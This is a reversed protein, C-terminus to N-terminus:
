SIATKLLSIGKYVFACDGVHLQEFGVQGPMGPYNAYRVLADPMVDVIKFASASAFAGVIHNAAMTQLYDNVVVPKGHLKAVFVNTPDTDFIPRHNDDVLGRLAQYLSDSFMFVGDTRYAAALSHEWAIFEAYTIGTPSATTKGVTGNTLLTTTWASEQVKEIRKGLLDVVYGLVDFGAAQIMVNSFWAQKSSYQTPSITVSADTADQTTGSSANEALTAGINGTDDAIPLSWTAPSTTEIPNIGYADLAARYSNRLRRITIVPLVQKPLYAGSGTSTTVTFLDRPMDGTRAFHNIAKSYKAKEFTSGDVDARYDDRGAPQTVGQVTGQPNGTEDEKGDLIDSALKAFEDRALIQSKIEKLRSLRKQNDKLEVETLDREGKMAAEVVDSGEKHLRTFEDRLKKIPDPVENPATIGDKDFHISCLLGGLM